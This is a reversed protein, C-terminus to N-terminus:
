TKAELEIIRSQMANILALTQHQGRPICSLNVLRNDSKIGNIHHILYGQPIDGNAGMWVKIHERVYGNSCVRLHSRDYVMVYGSSNFYRGGSWNPHYEGRRLVGACKNCHTSQPAKHAGCRSCIHNGRFPQWRCDRCTENRDRIPKGCYPCKKTLGKYSACAPCLRKHEKTPEFDKECRGCVASMRRISM